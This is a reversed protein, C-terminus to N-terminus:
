TIQHILFAKSMINEQNRKYSKEFRNGLCVDFFKLKAQSAPLLEPKSRNEMKEMNKSSKKGFKSLFALRLKNVQEFFNEQTNHWIQRM